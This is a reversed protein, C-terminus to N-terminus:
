AVNQLSSTDPTWQAILQELRVLQYRTHENPTREYQQRLASLRAELAHRVPHDNHMPTPAAHCGFPLCRVAADSIKFSEPSQVM